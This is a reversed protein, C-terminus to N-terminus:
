WGIVCSTSFEQAEQGTSNYDNYVVAKCFKKGKTRKGGKGLLLQLFITQMTANVKKATKVKTALLASVTEKLALVMAGAHLILVSASPYMVSQGKGAVTACVPEKPTNDM